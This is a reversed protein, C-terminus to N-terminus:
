EVVERLVLEPVEQQQYAGVRDQPPAAVQELSAM